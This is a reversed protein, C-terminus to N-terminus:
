LSLVRICVCVFFPAKLINFLTFLEIAVYGQFMHVFHLIIFFNKMFNILNNVNDLIRERNLMKAETVAYTAVYWTTIEM